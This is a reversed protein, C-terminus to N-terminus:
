VAGLTEGLTKVIELWVVSAIYICLQIFGYTGEREVRERERLFQTTISSSSLSILVKSSRHGSRMSATRWRAGNSDRVLNFGTELDHHWWM